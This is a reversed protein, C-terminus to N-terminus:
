GQVHACVTHSVIVLNQVTILSSPLCIKARDVAFVSARDTQPLKNIKEAVVRETTISARRVGTLYFYVPM